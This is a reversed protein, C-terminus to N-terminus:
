LPVVKMPLRIVLQVHAKLDWEELLRGESGLAEKEAIIRELGDADRAIMLGREKQMLAKLEVYLREEENLVSLLRQTIATTESM